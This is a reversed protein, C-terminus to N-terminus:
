KQINMKVTLCTNTVNYINFKEWSNSFFQQETQWLNSFITFHYLDKELDAQQLNLLMRSIDLIFVFFEWILYNIALWWKLCFDFGSVLEM